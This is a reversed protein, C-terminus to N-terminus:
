SWNQDFNIQLMVPTASINEVAVLVKVGVSMIPNKTIM